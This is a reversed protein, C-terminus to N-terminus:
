RGFSPTARPPELWPTDLGSALLERAETHYQYSLILSVKRRDGEQQCHQETPGECNRLRIRRLGGIFITRRRLEQGLGEGPYEAGTM